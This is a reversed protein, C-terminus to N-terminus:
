DKFNKTWDPNRAKRDDVREKKERHLKEYVEDIVHGLLKYFDSDEKKVYVEYHPTKVQLAIQHHPFTKSRDQPHLHSAEMMLDLYAPSPGDAIFDIVKQLQKKVNREIDESHEMHLYAIRIIPENM